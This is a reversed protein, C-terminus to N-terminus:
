NFIAYSLIITGNLAATPHINEVTIVVSGAAPVVKIVYPVGATATGYGVSADVVSTPLLNKNTLTLVWTGAAATTLSASTINGAGSNSSAAATTAGTVALNAAESATGQGDIEVQLPTGSANRIVHRGM